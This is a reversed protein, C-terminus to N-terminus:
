IRHHAHNIEKQDVLAPNASLSTQDRFVDLARRRYWSKAFKQLASQLAPALKGEVSHSCSIFAKYLYINNTSESM